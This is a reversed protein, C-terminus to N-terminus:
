IGRWIVKGQLGERRGAVPPELPYGVYVFGVLSEGEGMELYRRVADSYAHVGTRVKAGLGMSHAALLLNQLAAGASVMEEQPVINNARKPSCIV